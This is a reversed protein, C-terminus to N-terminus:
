FPGVVGLRVFVNSDIDNERRLDEAANEFEASRELVAGFEGILLLEQSLSYGAGAYLRFDELTIRERDVASSDDLSYTNSRWDFAGYLNWDRIGYYTVRTMPLGASVRWDTSAEWEVRAFPAVEREFGPRCEVGIAGSLEPHVAWILSGSFPFFFSDSDIGDLESYIGPRTRLQLATNNVYRWTIGANLSLDILESPLDIGASDLATMGGDLRLDVDAMLVDRYYAFEWTGDLETMSTDGHDKVSSEPIYALSLAYQSGCAKDLIQCPAPEAGDGPAPMYQARAGGTLLGVVCVAALAMGM